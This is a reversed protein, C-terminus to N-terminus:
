AAARFPIYEPLQRSVSRYIGAMQEALVSSSFRRSHRRAEASKSVHLAPDNLLEHVRAAFPGV